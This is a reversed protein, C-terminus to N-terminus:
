RADRVAAIAAVHAPTTGCCGGVAAAGAELWGAAHAAFDEPSLDDTRAFGGEETPAGLNAYVLLPLGSDALVPLCPAVARPPLCNVGVAAPGLPAVAALAEALPEGSLLRAAEDCVFSVWVPAGAERAAAVTAAAERATNMTEVLVVDAGADVLNRAHEGHERALAAADPVRDPRYCDELPPASGAVWRAPGAAERALRVALITLERARAALGGHALSRAQTGFTDASLVEAGAAAYEAHIRAVLAPDEVLSRASWLPLGADAGHRELETGLAGDLVLPPGTALREALAKRLAERARAEPDSM